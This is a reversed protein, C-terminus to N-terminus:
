FDFRKTIGFVFRWNTYTYNTINSSSRYYEGGVTFTTDYLLDPVEVGKLLTQIPVGLTTAIRFIHDRRTRSSIFTDPEDYQDFEWSLRNLLFSGGGLAWVHEVFVLVGTYDNFDGVALKRIVTVGGSLRMSPTLIYHAGVGGRYEPGTRLRNAPAEDIDRYSQSEVQVLAFLKLKRKYTFIAQVQAGLAGLFDEHSLRTHRWYLRPVIEFPTLDIIGGGALEFSTMTFEDLKFQEGHYATASAFLRHQAQFGLDQEVSFRLLSRWSSDAQNPDGPLTLRGIFTDLQGSGPGANRNSDFAYATHGLLSFRTRKKRRAIERQYRRLENRLSVPMKYRMVIDLEREAASVNDLRYLVIAYLVRIDPQDPNNLLLRELTASAGLVDGKRIQTRAWAINVDVDDPKKLVDDYSIDPGKLLADGPARKAAAGTRVTKETESAPTQGERKPDFVQADAPGALITLGCAVAGLVALRAPSRRVRNQRVRNQRIRKPRIIALRHVAPRSVTSGAAGARSGRMGKM